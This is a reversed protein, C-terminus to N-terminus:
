FTVPIQTRRRKGRKSAKTPPPPPAPDAPPPAVQPREQVPPPPPPAPAPRAVEAAQRPPPAAKAADKPPAGGGRAFLLALLVLVTVGLAGLGFWMFMPVQALARTQAAPMNRVDPPVTIGSLSPMQVTAGVPLGPTSPVLPASELKRILGVVETMTPRAAPSKAMLGHVLRAVGDPLDPVRRQLPTPEQTLQQVMVRSPEGDFPPAGSLMEYLMVGLAYVDVKGDIQDSGKCQEPAMYLATGMVMGAVTRRKASDLFRAIGFDLVKTREEGPMDPDPVLIINEPKLDRHIIRKDHAAALASAIQRAIRLADIVPFRVGQRQLRLQRDWLSEGELFEMMIYVTHDPLAGFDFIKVIGPHSVINVARAEDYFRGAYDSGKESRMHESSLVKVAARHGITEHVAEYVVGMGGRGLERKLVYQGIREGIRSTLTSITPRARAALM